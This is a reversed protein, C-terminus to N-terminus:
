IKAVDMKTPLFENKRIIGEVYTKKIVNCYGDRAHSDGHDDINVGKVAFTNKGIKISLSCDNDETLFNCMGCSVLVNGNIRKNDPVSELLGTSYSSYSHSKSTSCGGCGAYLFQSTAFIIAIFTSKKLM